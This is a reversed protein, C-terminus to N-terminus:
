KDTRQNLYMWSCSDPIREPDSRYGRFIHKPQMAQHKQPVGLLPLPPTESDKAQTHSGKGAVWYDQGTRVHPYKSLRMPVQYAMNPQYGQSTQVNRFPFLLLTFPTPSSQLYPFSQSSHLLSPLSLNPYLVHSFFLYILLFSLREKSILHILLGESNDTDM